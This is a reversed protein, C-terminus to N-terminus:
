EKKKNTKKPRKSTSKRKRKPPAIIQIIEEPGDDDDTETDEFSHDLEMCIEELIDELEAVRSELTKIRLENLDETSVADIIKVLTDLTAMLEFLNKKNLKRKNNKNKNDV